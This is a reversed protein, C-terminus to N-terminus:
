SQEGRRQVPRVDFTEIELLKFLADTPSEGVEATAPNKALTLAALADRHKDLDTPDVPVFGTIKVLYGSRTAM